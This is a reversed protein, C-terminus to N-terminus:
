LLISVGNSRFFHRCKSKNKKIEEGQEIGYFETFITKLLKLGKNGKKTGDGQKEIFLGKRGLIM